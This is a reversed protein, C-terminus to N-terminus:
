GYEKSDTDGSGDGEIGPDDVVPIHRLFAQGVLDNLTTSFLEVADRASLDLASLKTGTGLELGSCEVQQAM